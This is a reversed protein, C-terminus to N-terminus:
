HAPAELERGDVADDVREGHDVRPEGGLVCGPRAVGVVYGPGPLKLHYEFDDESSQM